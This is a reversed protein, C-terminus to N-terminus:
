AVQEIWRNIESLRWVARKHSLRCQRPFKGAQMQRYIERRSLTTLDIVQEIRLLKDDDM